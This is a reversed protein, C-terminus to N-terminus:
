SDYTQRLPLRPDWDTKRLILKRWLYGVGLLWIAARWEPLRRGRFTQNGCKCGMRIGNGYARYSPM